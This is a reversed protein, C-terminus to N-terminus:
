RLGIQDVIIPIIQNFSRKVIALTIEIITANIPRIKSKYSKLFWSVTINFKPSKELISEPRKQANPADISFFHDLSGIIGSVAM